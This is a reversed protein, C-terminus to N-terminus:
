TTESGSCGKVIIAVLEDVPPAGTDDGPFPDDFDFDGIDDDLWGEDLGVDADLDMPPVATDM